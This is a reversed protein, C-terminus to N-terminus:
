AAFYEISDATTSGSRPALRLEAVQTGRVVRKGVLHFLLDGIQAGLVVGELRALPEAMRIGLRLELGQRRDLPRQHARMRSRRGFHEPDAGLRRVDDTAGQAFPADQQGLQELMRRLALEDLAMGPAHAIQHHPVVAADQVAAPAEIERLPPFQAAGGGLITGALEAGSYAIAM